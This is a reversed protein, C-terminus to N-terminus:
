CVGVFDCVIVCKAECQKIDKCITFIGLILYEDDSNVCYSSNRKKLVPNHGKRMKQMVKVILTWAPELLHFVSGILLLGKADM